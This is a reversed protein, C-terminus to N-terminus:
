WAETTRIAMIMQISVSYSGLDMKNLRKTGVYAHIDHAYITSTKVM